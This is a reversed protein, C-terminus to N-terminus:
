KQPVERKGDIVMGNYDIKFGEVAGLPGRTFTFVAAGIADFTDKKDAIPSLIGEYGGGTFYLKGEKVTIDMYDFPVGEVKYKGTYSASDSINFWGSTSDRPPTPPTPTTQASLSDINLFLAVLFVLILQKM